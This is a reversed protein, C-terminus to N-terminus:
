MNTSDPPTSILTDIADAEYTIDTLGLAYVPVEGTHEPEPRGEANEGPMAIAVAVHLCATIEAREPQEPPLSALGRVWRGATGLRSIFM